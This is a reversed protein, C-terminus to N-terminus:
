IGLLGKELMVMSELDLFEQYEKSRKSERLDVKFQNRHKRLNKNVVKLTHKRVIKVLFKTHKDAIYNYMRIYLNRLYERLTIKRKVKLDIFDQLIQYKDKSIIVKGELFAELEFVGIVPEIIAERLEPEWKNREIWNEINIM